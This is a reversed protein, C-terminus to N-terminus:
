TTQKVNILISADFTGVYVVPGSKEVFEDLRQEMDRRKMKQKQTLASIAKIDGRVFVSINSQFIQILPVICFFMAVAFGQIYWPLCMHYVECPDYSLAYAIIPVAAAIYMGIVYFVFSKVGKPTLDFHCLARSWDSQRLFLWLINELTPYVHFVREAIWIVNLSYNELESSLIWPDNCIVIIVLFFVQLNNAFVIWCGFMAIFSHIEGSPDFFGLVDVMAFLINLTWTWNTFYMIYGDFSNSAVKGIFFFLLSLFYFGSVFFSVNKAFYGTAIKPGLTVEHTYPDIFVKRSALSFRQDTDEIIIKNIDIEFDKFLNERSGGMQMFTTAM